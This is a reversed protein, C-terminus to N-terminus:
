AEPSSSGRIPADRAAQAARRPAAPRGAVFVRTLLSGVGTEIRCALGHAGHIKHVLHTTTPSMACKRAASGRASCMAQRVGNAMLGEGVGSEV